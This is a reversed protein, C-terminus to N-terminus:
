RVSIDSGFWKKSIAALTGDKKMEAIAAEVAAKLEADDKRLAIGVPEPEAATGTVEFVDPKQKVYFLGVPEDIVIVDARKQEVAIFTDAFSDYSKIEKVGQVSRALDESTTNKQVAVVRGKLDELKKVPAAGKPVVFVQALKAYEVFDVQQQREPTVNMSSIVADFRRGTLGVLLGDWETSVMEAKVGLRRAVENAVDVDFGIITKNDTDKYEMPPYTDDTAFTMKGADKIRQPVAIGGAQAQQTAQGGAPKAQEQGGQGQAAQGQAPQGGGSAAPASGKGCATLALALVTLLALAAGKARSMKSM